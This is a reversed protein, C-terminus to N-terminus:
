RADDFWARSESGKGDGSSAADVKETSNTRWPRTGAIAKAQVWQVVDWFAREWWRAPRVANRTYWGSRGFGHHVEFSSWFPVSISMEGDDSVGKSMAYGATRVRTVVGYRGLAMVFDGQCPASEDMMEPYDAAYDLAAHVVEVPVNYWRAVEEAPDVDCASALTEVTTGYASFHPAGCRIDPHAEITTDPKRSSEAGAAINTADAATQAVLRRINRMAAEPSEQSAGECSFTLSEVSATYRGLCRRVSVVFDGHSGHAKADSEGASWTMRPEVARMEDVLNM